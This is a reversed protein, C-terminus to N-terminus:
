SNNAKAYEIFSDITSNLASEINSHTLLGFPALIGHLRIESEIFIETKNEIQEFNMRIKTGKADGDVIEINHLRNPLISHEVTMTTIVGAESFTEEVLFIKNGAAGTTQNIINVSIVNNPLINPYKEIDAFVNFIIDNDLDVNKETYFGAVFDSSFEKNEDLMNYYTTFSIFGIGIV